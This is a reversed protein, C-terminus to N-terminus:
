PSGIVKVITRCEARRVGRQRVPEAVRAAIKQQCWAELLPIERQCLVRTDFLPVRDLEPEFREVESVMRVVVRRRQIHPLWRRESLDGGCSGHPLQLETHLVNESAPIFLQM